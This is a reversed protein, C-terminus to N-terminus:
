SDTAEVVEPAPSIGNEVDWDMLARVATYIAASVKKPDAGSLILGPLDESSVRLGGDERLHLTITVPWDIHKADPHSM